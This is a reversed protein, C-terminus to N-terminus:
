TRTPHSDGILMRESREISLRFAETLLGVLGPPLRNGAGGPYATAPHIAGGRHSGPWPRSCAARVLEEALRDVLAVADALHPYEEALRRGATVSEGDPPRQGRSHLIAGIAVLNFGRRQLSVIERLRDLHGASYYATRGQRVPPELLGRARYARITRPAVGARRGFEAVTFLAAAGTSEGAASGSTATSM